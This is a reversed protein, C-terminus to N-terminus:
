KGPVEYKAILAQLTFPLPKDQIVTLVSDYLLETHTEIKHDKTQLATAAADQLKTLEADYTREENSFKIGLTNRVRMVMEAVRRVRGAFVGLGQDSDIRMPTVKSIFNLGVHVKSAATTLTIQGSAVTKGTIVAGDALVDVDEGELHDLGTIVTAPAGSYTVGCDVFYADNKATWQNPDLYEVYHKNVGGITRRVVMWLEDDANDAGYITAIAEVFGDIPHRHWGVVQQDRAYTLGCLKGEGTIAWLIPIPEQQYALSVVNGITIHESLLTLDASVFKDQEYSYALERVKRGKRQVWLIVGDILQAQVYESGYKSQQKANITSPTLVKETSRSTVEWEGGSTGILLGRESIMWQITNLEQGALTFVLAADDAASRHHNEYDGIVSGYLTQPQFATGGWFLREEHIEVTRPWGRYDSFAAEQWRTTADTSFFDKVVTATVHTADTFATIKVVGYILADSAELVARNAEGASYATYVLRYLADEEATATVDINRDSRSTWKFVVDYPAGTIAWDLGIRQLQLEGDWTGYTRVNYDGLIRLDQSTINTSLFKEVYASERRHGIRWYSGVHGAVFLSDSATLTIGTGTLASPAVTINTINEDLTPPEIFIIREIRWDTDAFRSLKYPPYLPHAIYIVDNVQKFKIEALVNGTDVYPSIIGYPSGTLLVPARDKYFRMYQDGVEIMFSTTVSFQFRWLVVAM